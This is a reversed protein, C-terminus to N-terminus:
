VKLRVKWSDDADKFIECQEAECNLDEWYIICDYTVDINEADTILEVPRIIGSSKKTAHYYKM